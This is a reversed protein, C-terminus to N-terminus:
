AEWEWAQITDASLTFQGSSCSTTWTGFLRNVLHKVLINNPVKIWHAETDTFCQILRTWKHKDEAKQLPRRNTFYDIHLGVVISACFSNNNVLPRKVFGSIRLIILASMWDPLLAHCCRWVCGRLVPVTSTIDCHNWGRQCSLQGRNMWRTSLELWVKSRPTEQPVWPRLSKVSVSLVMLLGQVLGLGSLWECSAIAPRPIPEKKLNLWLSTFSIDM